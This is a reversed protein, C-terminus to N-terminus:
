FPVDDEDFDDSEITIDETGVPVALAEDLYDQLEEDMEDAIDALEPPLAREVIAFVPSDWESVPSSEHKVDVVEVVHDGEFVSRGAEKTFEFWAGLSAGAMFLRVMEPKDGHLMAYVSCGFKIAPVSTKLDAWVGTATVKKGTFVTIPDSPRRAETGWIPSKLAKNFGTVTSLQALVTFRIGIPVDVDAKNEKDWYVWAKKASKWKLVKSCPNTPRSTKRTRSM